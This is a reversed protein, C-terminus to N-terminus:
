VARWKKLGYYVVPWMLISVLLPKWHRIVHIAEGSMVLLVWNLFLYVAVAVSAIIWLNNFTMIRKERTFYRASFAILIYSLGSIGIPLEILFDTFIGLALAFWIGCWAPQCMTWFLMVLLMFTPRWASMEYSVPYVMLVSAIIVSFIIAVLPDHNEFTQKKAISM